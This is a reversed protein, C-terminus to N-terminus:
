YEKCFCEMNEGQFLIQYNNNDMLHEFISKNLNIYDLVMDDNKEYFPAEEKSMIINFPVILREFYLGVYSEIIKPINELLYSGFGKNRLKKQILINSIFINGNGIEHALMGDNDMFIELYKCLTLNENSEALADLIYSMDINDKKLLNTNIFFIKAFGINENNKENILELTYSKLYIFLPHVNKMCFDSFSENNFTTVDKDKFPDNNIDYNDCNIKIRFPINTIKKNPTYKSIVFKNLKLVLKRIM